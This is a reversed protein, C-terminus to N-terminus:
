KKVLQEVIKKADEVEKQATAPNAAVFKELDV